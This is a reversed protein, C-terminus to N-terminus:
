VYFQLINTNKVKNGTKKVKKREKLLNDSVDKHLLNVSNKSTVQVYEQENKVQHSMCVRIFLIQLSVHTQLKYETCSLLLGEWILSNLSAPLLCPTADAM